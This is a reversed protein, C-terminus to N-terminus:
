DVECHADPSNSKMMHAHRFIRNSFSRIERFRTQFKDEVLKAFQPNALLFVVCM